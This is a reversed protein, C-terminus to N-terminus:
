RVGALRKTLELISMFGGVAIAILGFNLGYWGFQWNALSGLAGAGFFSMIFITGIACHVAAVIIKTRLDNNYAFYLLGVAALGLLPVLWFAASGKAMDVGNGTFSSVGVLPLFFSVAALLGGVGAVKGGMDLGNWMSLLMNPQAPAAPPAQYTMPPPPPTGAGAAMPAGCAGCAGVGDPNQAGCKSCFAM